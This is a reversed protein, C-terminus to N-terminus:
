GSPGPFDPHSRATKLTEQCQINLCIELFSKELGWNVMFAFLQGYFCPILDWGWFNCGFSYSLRLWKAAEPNAPTSFAQFPKQYSFYHTPTLPFLTQPTFVPLTSHVNSHLSLLLSILHCSASLHNAATSNFSLLPCGPSCRHQNVPAAYHPGTIYGHLM